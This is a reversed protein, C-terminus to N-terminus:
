AGHVAAKELHGISFDDMGYVAKLVDHVTADRHDAVYRRARPLDERRITRALGPPNTATPEKEIIWLDTAAAAVDLPERNFGNRSAAAKELHEKKSHEKKHPRTENGRPPLTENGRRPETENGRARAGVTASLWDAFRSEDLVIMDRRVTRADAIKEVRLWGDDTLAQVAAAVRPRSWGLVTAIRRQSLRALFEDQHSHLWGLLILASTSVRENNHFKLTWFEHPIANFGSRRGSRAFSDSM